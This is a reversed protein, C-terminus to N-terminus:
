CFWVSMTLGLDNTSFSVRLEVRLQFWNSFLAVWYFKRREFSLWMKVRSCFWCEDFCFICYVGRNTNLLTWLFSFSIMASLSLCDVILDLM